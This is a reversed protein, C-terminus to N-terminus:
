KLNGFKGGARSTRGESGRDEGEEEVGVKREIGRIDDRWVKAGGRKRRSSDRM